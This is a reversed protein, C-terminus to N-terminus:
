LATWRLHGSRGPRATRSSDKQARYLAIARMNPRVSLTNLSQHQQVFLELVLISQTPMLSFRHVRCLHRYKCMGRSAVVVQEKGLNHPHHDRPKLDITCQTNCTYVNKTM